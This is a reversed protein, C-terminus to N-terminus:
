GTLIATQGNPLLFDRQPDPATLDFSEMLFSYATEDGVVKEFSLLLGSEADFFYHYDATKEEAILFLCTRGGWVDLYAEAIDEASMSLVRRIEAEFDPLMSMNDPVFGSGSNGEWWAGGAPWDYYKGNGSIRTRQVLGDPGLQESKVVGELTATRFRWTASEGGWHLTVAYTATYAEPRSLTGLLRQINDPGVELREFPNQPFVTQAAAPTESPASFGSEEPPLTLPPAPPRLLPLLLVSAFLALVLALASAVALVTWKRGFM